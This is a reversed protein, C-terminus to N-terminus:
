LQFGGGNGGGQCDWRWVETVIGSNSIRWIHFPASSSSITSKNPFDDVRYYEDRGVWPAAPDTSGFVTSCVTANTADGLSTATSKIPTSAGGFSNQCFDELDEAVFSQQIYYLNSGCPNATPPQAISKTCPFLNGSNSYGSPVRINFDISRQTATTVSDFKIPTTTEITGVTSDGTKITGDTYISQNTLTTTDCNFAVLSSGPQSFLKSCEFQATANGYGAPVTILFFLTVPRAAPTGNAAYSIISIGESTARIEAITGILSPSTITGDQAISGGTLGVSDVGTSATCGLNNSVTVTVSIAQIAICTNAGNDFAQVYVVNTGGVNLATLTLTSGSISMNVFSKHPNVIRYGAIAESGANFYSALNVTDTDGGATMSQAPISGNTTPGGSCDGVQQTANKSCLLYGTGSNSFGDPIVIKFVVTRVTQSSVAAFKDNSFGGATSTFSEIYGYDLNPLSVTGNTDVTYDSLNAITCTFEPSPVSPTVYTLYFPSRANIKSM